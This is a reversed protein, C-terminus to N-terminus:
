RPVRATYLNFSGPVEVGGPREYAALREKVAAEVAAVDAESGGRERIIGAAPGFRVAFRTVDSLTGPPTLAISVTEARADALGAQKLLGVVRGVDQFAFPGPATPPQQPVSGLRAAAAQRPIGFWPNDAPAAWTLFVSAAARGCHGRWM